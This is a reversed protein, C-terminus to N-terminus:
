KVLFSWWYRWYNCRFLCWDTWVFCGICCRGNCIYPINWKKRYEQTTLLRRVLEKGDIKGRFFQVGLYIAEIAFLTLTVYGSGAAVDKVVEKTTNDVFAAVSAGITGGVAAGGSGALNQVIALSKDTGATM